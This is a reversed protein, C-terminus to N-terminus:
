GAKVQQNRTLTGREVVALTQGRGNRRPLNVELMWPDIRHSHQMSGIDDNKRRSGRL